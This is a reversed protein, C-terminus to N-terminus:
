SLIAEVVKSLGVDVLGLFLAMVVTFILVAVCTTVTEKQTPWVVKKIEVKSEEFFEMLQRLKGNKEAVQSQGAGKGKQKAM